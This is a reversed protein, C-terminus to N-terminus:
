QMLTITILNITRPDVLRDFDEYRMKIMERHTGANFSIMENESFSEAVIVDLDYLEGFPPMAGIECDPFLNRFESETALTVKEAELQKKLQNLNIKHNAPLVAMVMQGDVKLMVTKAFEKGSEHAAQVTEQSTYAVPHTIVRYQV